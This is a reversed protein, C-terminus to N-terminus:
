YKYTAKRGSVKGGHAYRKNHSAYVKGGGMYKKVKGGSKVVQDMTGTKPNWKRQHERFRKFEKADREEKFQKFEKKYKKHREINMEAAQEDEMLSLLDNKIKMEKKNKAVRELQKKLWEKYEEDRSNEDDM